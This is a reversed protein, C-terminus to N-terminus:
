GDESRVKVEIFKFADGDFLGKDGLKISPIVLLAMFSLTMLPANLQSGMEKAKRDILEYAAAVTNADLDSIIGAIPLSLLDTSHETVACIGGGHEMLTEIAKIISDDDVGVVVINHSDHAVTSAIAGYKLGFGQFGPWLQLLM